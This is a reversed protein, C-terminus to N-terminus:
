QFFQFSSTALTWFRQVYTHAPSFPPQTEFPSFTMVYVSDNHTFIVQVVLTGTESFSLGEAAVADRGGLSINYSRFPSGSQSWESLMIEDLTRNNVAGKKLLTVYARVEGSGDDLAPGVFDVWGPDPQRPIFDSPYLFCFGETRYDYVGVGPDSSKCPAEDTSLPSTRTPGTPQTPQVPAPTATLTASPAAATQTAAVLSALARAYQTGAIGTAALDSLQQLGQMQPVCASALGIIIVCTSCIGLGAWKHKQM